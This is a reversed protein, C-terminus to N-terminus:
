CFFLREDGIKRVVTLCILLDIFLSCSYEFFFFFDTMSRFYSRDGSPLGSRFSATLWQFSDSNLVCVYIYRSYYICWHSSLFLFFFFFCIYLLCVFLKLFIFRRTRENKKKEPQPLRASLARERQERFSAMFRERGCMYTYRLLACLFVFFVFFLALTHTHTHIHTNFHKTLQLNFPEALPIAPVVDVREIPERERQM